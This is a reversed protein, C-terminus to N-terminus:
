RFRKPLIIKDHSISVIQPPSTWIGCEAIVTKICITSIVVEMSTVLGAITVKVIVLLITFGYREWLLDGWSQRQWEKMAISANCAPFPLVFVIMSMRIAKFPLNRQIKPSLAGYSLNLLFAPPRWFKDKNRSEQNFCPLTFIIQLTSLSCHLDLHSKDAFIM